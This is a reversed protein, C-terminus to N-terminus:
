WGECPEGKAGSVSLWTEARWCSVANSVPRHVGSEGTGVEGEGVESGNGVSDGRGGVSGGRLTTSLWTGVLFTWKAGSGIVGM